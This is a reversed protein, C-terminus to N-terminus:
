RITLAFNVGVPVAVRRGYEKEKGVFQSCHFHRVGMRGREGPFRKNKKAVDNIILSSVM